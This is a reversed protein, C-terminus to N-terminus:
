TIKESGQVGVSTHLNNAMAAAVRAVADGAAVAIDGRKHRDQAALQSSMMAAKNALDANAFNSKFIAEAANTRASLMGAVANILGNQAQAKGTLFQATQQQSSAATRIYDNASSLALQRAEKASAIAIKTMELEARFSEIAADTSMKGLEDQAKQQIQLTQHQLAGPPIPFRKASWIGAVEDTARVAGALIRSRGREFILAEVAANIGSGGAALQTNIWGEAASWLAANTPMYTSIYNSFLTVLKNLIDDNYENFLILDPGEAELPITVNPEAISTIPSASAAGVTTSGSVATQAADLRDGLESNLAEAKTWAQNIIQQSLDGSISM